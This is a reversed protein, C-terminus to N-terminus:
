RKPTPPPVLVPLATVPADPYASPDLYAEFCKQGTGHSWDTIGMTSSGYYYPSQAASKEKETTATEFSACVSFRRADIIRYSYPQKTVPDVPMKGSFYELDDLKSPIAYKKNWYNGVSQTINQLHSIRAQDLKQYRAQLPSGIVVFGLIISVIATAVVTIAGVKPGLAPLSPDRRIDYLYYWFIGGASVLTLGSKLVFRTTIEGGFFYYVLAILDSIVTAAALFIIISGLVKRGGTRGKGIQAYNVALSEVHKNALWCLILYVPVGVLLIAMAWRIASDQWSLSYSSYYSSNDLADPFVKNILDFVFSLFSSYVSCLAIIIGLNLLVAKVDARPKEQTPTQPAPAPPPNNVYQNQPFGNQATPEM